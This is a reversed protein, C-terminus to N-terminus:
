LSAVSTSYIEFKDSNRVNKVNEENMWKETIATCDLTESCDQM